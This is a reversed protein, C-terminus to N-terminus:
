GAQPKRVAFKPFVAEFHQHPTRALFEDVAKKVSPWTQGTADYDDGVLVGGPELREWWNDLDMVVSRYDRSADIHIMKATIALRRFLECANASDLPLPVIVDQLQALVVNRLFTTYLTPRGDEIGLLPRWKDNAWHEFSGLWTDVAIIKAEIASQKVLGGMFICSRGKWVGVEVIVDPLHRIITDRLLPHDSNWGQLDQDGAYGRASVYPDHDRWILGALDSQSVM